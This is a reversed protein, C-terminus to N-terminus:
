PNRMPSIENWISMLKETSLRLPRHSAAPGPVARRVLLDPVDRDGLAHHPGGVLRRGAIRPSRSRARSLALRRPPGASTPTASGGLPTTRGAPM